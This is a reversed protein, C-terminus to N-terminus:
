KVLIMQRVATFGESRMRCFFPGASLGTADFTVQHAGEAREEDVLTRVPRGFLDVIDIVVHAVRPLRYMIETTPNFPNPKNQELAFAATARLPMVCSGALLAGGDTTRLRVSGERGDDDGNISARLVGTGGGPLPIADLFRLPTHAIDFVRTRAGFSVRFRLTAIQGAITSTLPAGGTSASMRVIGTGTGGLLSVDPGTWGAHMLVAPLTAADFELMDADYAINLRYARVDRGRTSGIYVPMALVEGSRALVTDPMWVHVLLPAAGVVFSVRCTSPSQRESFLVVRFESTYATDRREPVVMWTLEHDKGVPLSGVDKVSAEGVDFSFGAPLLLMAQVNRSTDGAQAAQVRVHIRVRGDPAAQDGARFVSLEHDFEVSDAPETTVGCVLPHQSMHVLAIRRECTTVGGGAQEVIITLSTSGAIAEPRVRFSACLVVSDGPAPATIVTDIPGQVVQLEQAPLFRVRLLGTGGRVVACASATVNTMTDPMACSLLVRPADADIVHVRACCQQRLVGDLRVSFCVSAGDTPRGAIELVWSLTTSNGAALQDVMQELSAGGVPRVWAPLAIQVQMRELERTGTNRLTVRATFNAPSVVGFPNVRLTDLVECVLAVAAEACPIVTLVTACRATHTADGHGGRGVLTATVTDLGGDGCLARVAFGRTVRAGPELRGVAFVTAGTPIVRRTGGLTLVCDQLVDDGTNEATVEIITSSPYPSPAEAALTDVDTMCALTPHPSRARTVVVPLLCIRPEANAAHVVVRVTDTHTADVPTPQLDFWLSGDGGVSTGAAISGVVLQASSTATFRAHQLMTVRVDAAVGRGTNLVSVHIRAPDPQYRTGTFHLTDPGTLVCALAPDVDANVAPLPALRTVCTSRMTDRISTNSSRRGSVIAIFTIASPVPDRRPVHVRWSISAGTVGPPVSNGPFSKTLPEVPNVREVGAPLVLTATAGDIATNGTNFASVTVAITDPDWGSSDARVGLSDPVSCSAHLASGELAPMVIQHECTTSEVGARVRLEVRRIAPILTLPHDLRWRVTTQEGARLVAPWPRVVLPTGPPTVNQLPPPIVLEVSLTDSTRGGENRITAIVDFPMPTYRGRTSDAKIEPIDLACVLGIGGPPVHVRACCQALAANEYIARVCIIISDRSTRLAPTLMWAVSTSAGPALDTLALTDTAPVLGELSGTSYSIVAIGNRALRPGGNEVTFTVTFPSPDYGARSSNWVLSDPVGLVCRLLPESAMVCIRAPIPTVALCGGDLEWAGPQIDCCGSRARPRAVFRLRALVGPGDLIVKRTTRLEIQGGPLLQVSLGAQRLLIGSTDSLGVFQLCTTDYNVTTRGPALFQRSALFQLEFPIDLTDGENVTTDGMAVVATERPPGSSPAVYTRFGVDGGGCFRELRLEVTREKGDACLSEYIIECRAVGAIDLFIEQYIQALMDPNEVGFYRGGTQFALYALAVANVDIGLGVTFVRVGHMRAYAIVDNLGRVSSNDIGDTLLIVARCSDMTTSNAVLENIGSWAADWAATTGVAPLSDIALTLLLKDTTMPQVLTDHDHFWLVAARDRTGDMGQVFERAAGITSKNKAGQMSGSADLVMAVTIPCRAQAPPCYLTFEGIEVGDEIVRFNQPTYSSTLQRNCRVTFSLKVTPWNLTVGNFDLDPQATAPPVALLCIACVLMWLSPTCLPQQKM